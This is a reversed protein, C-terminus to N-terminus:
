LFSTVKEVFGVAKTVTVLFFRKVPMNKRVGGTGLSFGGKGRRRIIRCSNTNRDAGCVVSGSWGASKQYPLYKELITINTVQFELFEMADNLYRKWDINEEPPLWSVCKM